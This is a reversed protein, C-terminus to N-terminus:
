HTLFPPYEMFTWFFRHQESAKSEVNLLFFSVSGITNNYTTIAIRNYNQSTLSPSYEMGPFWFAQKM